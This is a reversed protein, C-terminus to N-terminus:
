SETDNIVSGLLAGYQRQSRYDIGRTKQCSCTYLLIFAEVVCIRM